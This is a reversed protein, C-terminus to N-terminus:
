PSVALRAIAPTQTLRFLDAYLEAIKTKVGTDAAALNSMIEDRRALVTQLSQTVHQDVPGAVASQVGDFFPTALQAALGYNDRNVEYSMMGLQVQLAALELKDTLRDQEARATHANLSAPVYGLLFAGLLALAGLGLKKPTSISM